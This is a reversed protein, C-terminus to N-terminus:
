QWQTRAYNKFRHNVRRESDAGWEPPAARSNKAEKQQQQKRHIPNHQCLANFDNGCAQYWHDLDFIRPDRTESTVQETSAAADLGVFEHSWWNSLSINWAIWHKSFKSIAADSHTCEEIQKWPGTVIIACNQIFQSLAYKEFRRAKLAVALICADTSSTMWPETSYRGGQYKIPEQPDQCFDLFLKFALPDHDPLVLDLLGQGLEDRFQPSSRLTKIDVTFSQTRDGEGVCM